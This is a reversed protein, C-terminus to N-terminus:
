AKGRSRRCCLSSGPSPRAPWATAERLSSCTLSTGACCRGIEEPVPWDLGNCSITAGAMSFPSTNATM